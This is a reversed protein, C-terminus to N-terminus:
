CSVVQLAGRHWNPKSVSFRGSANSVGMRIWVTGKELLPTLQCAPAEREECVSIWRWFRHQTRCLQNLSKLYRKVKTEAGAVKQNEGNAGHRARALRRLPPKPQNRTSPQGQVLHHRFLSIKWKRHLERDALPRGCAGRPMRSYPEGEFSGNERERRHAAVNATRDGEKLLMNRGSNVGLINSTLLDRSRTM